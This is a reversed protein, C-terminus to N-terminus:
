FIWALVITFVLIPALTIILGQLFKQTKLKGNEKEDITPTVSQM